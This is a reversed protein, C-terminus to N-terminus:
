IRGCYMVQRASMAMFGSIDGSIPATGYRTFRHTQWVFVAAFGTVRSCGVSGPSYCFSGAACGEIISAPAMIYASPFGFSQRLPANARAPVLDTAQPQPWPKVFRGLQHIEVFTQLLYKTSRRSFEGDGNRNLEIVTTQFHEGAIADLVRNRATRGLAANAESGVHRQVFHARQCGPHGPLARDHIDREAAAFPPTIQSRVNKDCISSSRM